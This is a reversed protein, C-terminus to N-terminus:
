HLDKQSYRKTSLIWSELFFLYQQSSPSHLWLSLNLLKLIKVEADM